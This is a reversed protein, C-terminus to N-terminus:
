VSKELPLLFTKRPLTKSVWVVYHGTIKQGVQIPSFVTYKMAWFKPKPNGQLDKNSFQFSVLSSSTLLTSCKVTLEPTQHESSKIELIVLIM